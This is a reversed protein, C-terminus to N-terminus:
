ALKDGAQDPPAAVVPTIVPFGRQEMLLSPARETDRGLYRAAVLWLLGGVLVLVAMAAFGVTLNWREAVRGIITPSIADGLAHIILINVAFASARIAPPTVNALAANSPGTNFFLCFIALFIIVWCWPFPTILMLLFMPCGALMGVGSVLFYSGPFRPRLKDGAWGGALTALLGAVVLIGGFVIRSSKEEVGRSASLYRPMWFGVGGMAFTMATMAATNLVYSPIKALLLYDRAIAKRHAVADAQGRPPERMFFCWVGLLIGPPLTAYFAWHWHKIFLGGIVYGLASGVPIAAYFWALVKGRVAVPYLDSILTPAVPGYAAEGFGILVRMFALMAFTRAWGSGGSALSWIIVGVGILMWRPFRDALWGFLPSVLMYTVLFFTMLLGMRGMGVGFEDSIPKEVAALIYRDIYNFLNIALLLILAARAGPMAATRSDSGPSDTAAHM